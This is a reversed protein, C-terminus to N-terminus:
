YANFRFFISGLVPSVGPVRPPNGLRRGAYTRLYEAGALLDAGTFLLSTSTNMRALTCNARRTHAWNLWFCERLDRHEVEGVPAEHGDKVRDLPPYQTRLGRPLTSPFVCRLLWFVAAGASRASLM